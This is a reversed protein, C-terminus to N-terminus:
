VDGSEGVRAFHACFFDCTTLLEARYSSADQTFMKIGNAKPVLRRLNDFPSDPDANETWETADWWQLPKACRRVVILGAREAERDDKDWFVCEDCRPAEIGRERRERTPPPNARLLRMWALVEPYPQSDGAAWRRVERYPADVVYSFREHGWHMECLVWELLEVYENPSIDPM